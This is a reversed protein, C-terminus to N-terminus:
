DAPPAHRAQPRRHRRRIPHHVLRSARWPQSPTRAPATGSQPPDGDPQLRLPLRILLPLELHAQRSVLQLGAAALTATAECTGSRVSAMHGSRVTVVLARVLLETRLEFRITAVRVDNVLLGVFPQYVATIRHAALEVVEASGPNAITREVAATLAAHKRWGAVFLDALDFDLLGHAVTAVEGEAAERGAQSVQGLGQSLSGLVGQQHLTRALADVSDDAEDFLFAAVTLPQTPSATTM